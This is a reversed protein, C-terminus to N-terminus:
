RKDEFQDNIQIDVASDDKRVEYISEPEYFVNVPMHLSVNTNHYIFNSDGWLQKEIDSCYMVSKDSASLLNAIDAKMTFGPISNQPTVIFMYDRARSLAVNVLNLNNVHSDRSVTSPTNLVVIMIDCEDGQFSHVTGCSVRCQPTDLPRNELMNKISGAQAGYPSVIGVTYREENRSEGYGVKDKIANPYQASISAVIYEAFRYAFIVSHLHFASLNVADVGYILDFPDTRYGLFNVHTMGALGLNLPKSDTNARASKLLGDYSLQSVLNGLVSISRHQTELAQVDSRKRAIAFSSIGAMDYINDPDIDNQTIPRIQMPDGAIIFEKPKSKFLIYAMSVIDIMSSEDIFIYDWKFDCIAVPSSEGRQLYDYAFRAITTVVVHHQDYTIFDSSTPTAIGEDILMQNETTGFRYLNNRHRGGTYESDEKMYREAIVDAAKNTPALVLINVNTDIPSLKKLLQRVLTTTKGTGAPGYIYRISQPLHARLDYMDDFGLQHFRDCLSRVHNASSGNSHIHVKTASALIDRYSDDLFETVIAIEDEKVFLVEPEFSFQKQGEVSLLISVPNELWKPVIRSPQRLSFVTSNKQEISSFEIDATQENAKAQDAFMIQMLLKFWLYTYKPTANLLEFIDFDDQARDAGNRAETQKAKIKKGAKDINRSSQQRSNPDSGKGFFDGRDEERNDAGKNIPTPDVNRKSHPRPAPINSETRKKWEKQLREILPKRKPAEPPTAPKDVPPSVRPNSVPGKPSDTKNSSNQNGANQRPSSNKSTSPGSTPQQPKKDGNAPSPDPKNGGGQSTNKDPGNDPKGSDVPSNNVGRSPSNPENGKGGDTTPHSDKGKDKNGPSQHNGSEETPTNDTGKKKYPDYQGGDNGKQNVTEIDPNGNDEGGSSSPETEQPKIDLSDKIELNLISLEKIFNENSFQDKCNNNIYSSIDSDSYEDSDLIDNIATVDYQLQLTENLESVLRTFVQKSQWSKVYYYTHSQCFFKENDIFLEEYSYAINSCLIFKCLNIKQKVGAYINEWGSGERAAILALLRLLITARIQITEDRDIPCSPVLDKDSIVSVGLIGLAKFWNDASISNKYQEFDLVHEDTRFSSIRKNDKNSLAYLSSIHAPKKQGNLWLANNCKRYIEIQQKNDDRYSSAIWGLVISRKITRPDTNLLYDLCDSFDLAVKFKMEDLIMRVADRRKTAVDPLKSEWNGVKKEVYDSINLSYLSETCCIAGARNPICVKDKLYGQKVWSLMEKQPDDHTPLFSKWYYASFQPNSLLAIDDLKFTMQVRLVENFLGLLNQLSTQGLYSEHLYSKTDIGNAEFDCYPTYAHGLTLLSPNSLVGNKDFLLIQGSEEMFEWNQSNRHYIDAFSAIFQLHVNFLTSDITINNQIALYADVKAHVWQSKTNIIKSGAYEAIKRLLKRVEPNVMYSPDIEKPLEIFPLPDTTYELTDTIVVNSIKTFECSHWLKVQLLSLKDKLTDWEEEIEKGFQEVLVFPIGENQLSSLDKDIIQRIVDKVDDKIGVAKFFERWRDNEESNTSSESYYESVFSKKGYRSAFAEIGQHYLNPMYVGESLSKVQTDSEIGNANRESFMLLPFGKLESLNYSLHEKNIGKLWRWFLINTDKDLLKKDFYSKNSKLWKNCETASFVTNGLTKWYNEMEPTDCLSAEIVNVEPLLGSQIESSIDFKKSQIYLETSTKCHKPGSFSSIYCPMNKLLAKQEDNLKGLRPCIFHHFASVKSLSSLDAKYVLLSSFLSGFSSDSYDKFGLKNFLNKGGSFNYERSVISISDDIVWLESSLDVLDSNFWFINRFNRDRKVIQNKSNIYPLEGFLSLLNEQQLFDKTQVSCLYLYFEKNISSNVLMKKAIDERNSKAVLYFFNKDSLVKLGFKNQLFKIFNEKDTRSIGSYYAPDLSYVWTPELWGHDTYKRDVEPFANIERCVEFSPQGEIDFVRLPITRFDTNEMLHHKNRFLYWVFSSSAAFDNLTQQKIFEHNEKNSLVAQIITRPEFFTVLHQNILFNWVRDKEDDTTYADNVFYAWTNNFWKENLIERGKGVKEEFFVIKGEFSDVFNGASDFFPLSAFSLGNYNDKSNIAIYRFFKVSVQLDHLKSLVFPKNDSSFLVKSVFVGPNLQKFGLSPWTKSWSTNKGDFYEATSYSLHPFYQVFSDLLSLALRINDGCYYIDNSSRLSGNNDIYIPLKSFSSLYSPQTTLLYELFKGNNEPVILWAQFAEEYVCKKLDEVGFINDKAFQTLYRIIFIRFDDNCRLSSHPLIGKRGTIRYFEEDDIIGSSSIHTEDWIIESISVIRGDETPILPQSLCSEFGKQFREVLDKNVPRRNKCDNFYPILAFISDFDYHKSAVLSHIWRYFMKGANESLYLNLDIDHEIDNRPGNPIMDSNMFFKFGWNATEAPLYCYMIANEQPVLRRNKVKCAFSVGTKKFDKYKVPIRSTENEEDEELEKNIKKTIEPDVDNEFVGSLCWNASKRSCSFSPSTSNGLYVNVKGLNPIFLIKTEDAFLKSLISHFSNEGKRLTDHKIPRMAFQVRYNDSQDWFINGFEPDIDEREKWIPTVKWPIGAKKKKLESDYSFSFGGTLLYIYNNHNFVTKFGIGKYGIADPNATKDKDNANCLAAVNKPSFEAGTHRFLLYNETLKIEVDVELGKQYPYDNANQLLEYIFIEEGNATLQKTLTDLLQHNTKASGPALNMQSNYLLTIIDHPTLIVVEKSLDITIECLNRPNSDTYKWDFLYYCNAKPSFTKDAIFVICIEGKPESENGEQDVVKYQEIRSFDSMRLDRVVFSGDEQREFMGVLRRDKTNNFSLYQEFSEHAKSIMIQDMFMKIM